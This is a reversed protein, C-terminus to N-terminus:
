KPVQGFEHAFHWRTRWEGLKQYDQHWQRDREPVEEGARIRADLVEWEAYRLDKEEHELLERPRVPLIVVDAMQETWREVEESVERRYGKDRGDAADIGAAALNLGESEYPTSPQPFEVLNAIQARHHALIEAAIGRTNAQKADARLAEKQERLWQKQTARALAAHEARDIGTLEPCEAVCIFQEGGSVYIRGMGGAPDFQVFVEQGVWQGLEPAIYWHHRPEGAWKIRIGKKGVTRRGHNDPAEALLLDLARENTIRKVPERWNRVLEAPTKGDLGHHTRHMYLSECWEDAIQQLQISTLSVAIEEGRKWLREAFSKRARLAQQEAVNHGIYGPMLEVLHHSFTNFFREIHPKHHPEFPPCKEHRIELARLVRASHHGIYEQGNDTKAIEPIGWNLLAWRILASLAVATSSKTVLLKPRRSYVDIVGSLSHRGDILMLDAPTADFEWIENLRSAAFSGHAVMHRSRWDDPNSVALFTQANAARWANLWREVARKSPLSVQPDNHFRARLGEYIHQASAHPYDHVFGACFGRLREQSEIKSAGKRNSYRGSLDIVGGAALRARWRQLTAPHVHHIEMRVPDAVPLEGANYLHCFSILAHSRPLRSGEFFAECALVLDFRAEARSRQGDPLQALDALGTQRSEHSVIRKIRESVKLTCAAAAGAKAEPAASEATIAQAALHARTDTPLSEIHYEWGKGHERKRREIEGQEGKWNVGRPTGPMGPLGVLEAAAFWQKM